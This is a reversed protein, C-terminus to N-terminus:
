KIVKFQNYLMDSKFIINMDDDIVRSTHRGTTNTYVLKDGIIEVM